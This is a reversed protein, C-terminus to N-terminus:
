ERTAPEDLILISYRLEFLDEDEANRFASFRLLGIRLKTKQTIPHSVYKIEANTAKILLHPLPTDDPYGTIPFPAEGRRPAAEGRYLFATLNPVEEPAKRKEEKITLRSSSSQRSHSRRSSSTRVSRSTSAESQPPPPMLPSSIGQPPNSSQLMPTPPLQPAPSYLQQVSAPQSTAYVPQIQQQQPVPSPAYSPLSPAYAGPQAGNVSGQQSGYPQPQQSILHQQQQLYSQAYDRAVVDNQTQGPMSHM